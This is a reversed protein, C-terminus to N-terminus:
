ANEQIFEFSDLFAPGVADIVAPEGVVLGQCLQLSDLYSRGIVAGAEGIAGRYAVGPRGQLEIPLSEVLEGGFNALAGDRAADLVPVPDVASGAPFATCSTIATAGGLEALYATVPLTTGDPLPAQLLQESPESPFAIRYTGTPDDWPALVIATIPPATSVPAATVAPGSDTPTATGPSTPTAPATTATAAGSDPEDAEAGTDGATDTASTTAADDGDSGCATLTVLVGVLATAAIPRLAALSM